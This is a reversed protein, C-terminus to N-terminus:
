DCELEILNNGNIDYAEIWKSNRTNCEDLAKKVKERKASMFVATAYDSLIYGVYIKM